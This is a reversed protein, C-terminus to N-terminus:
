SSWEKKRGLWLMVEFKLLNLSIEINKGNFYNSKVSSISINGSNNTINLIFDDVIVKSFKLNPSQIKINYNYTDFEGSLFTNQDITFKKSIINAFKPKLNLNFSLDFESNDKLSLYNKYGAFISNKMLTPLLLFNFDGILIGSVADESDINFFRKENNIRSQITLNEFKYEDDLGTLIFDTFSLDGIMSQFNEGILKANIKHTKRNNPLDILKVKKAFSISILITFISFFIVLSLKLFNIMM